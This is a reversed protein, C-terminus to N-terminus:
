RSGDAIRERVAQLDQWAEKKQAPSRLLYAPHFTALAPIPPGGDPVDVEHWRGRLRMIGETRQLVTKAAAGGVLMLVRPRILAIQRQMFPLCAMIEQQTPTRNGPPRWYLTNTIYVQQRELGIAHLMRDLLQGSPGVFPQGQRDEEEGPAEGIIMLKADAPGVGFVTNMATAKLACGEFTDLRARLGTLDPIAKLEEALGAIGAPLPVPPPPSAASLPAGPPAGSPAHAPIAAAQPPAAAPTMALESAAQPAALRNWPADAIVEDAGADLYWQLAALEAKM